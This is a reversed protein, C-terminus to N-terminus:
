GELDGKIPGIERRARQRRGITAVLARRMARPVYCFQVGVGVQDGSPDLETWVVAASFLFIEGGLRLRMDIELGYHLAEGTELFAGSVSIDRLRGVYRTDAATFHVNASFPVRPQRRRKRAARTVARSRTPYPAPARPPRPIFPTFELPRLTENIPDCM